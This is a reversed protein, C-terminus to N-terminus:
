NTIQYVIGGHVFTVAKGAGLFKAVAENDLLAFYADSLYKVKVVKADPTKARFAQVTTDVWVGEILRFTKGAIEKVGVGAHEARDASKLENELRAGRVAGAGSAKKKAIAEGAEDMSREMDRLAAIGGDAADAAPAGPSSPVARRRMGRRLFEREELVLFSTYPTVIGYRTALRKIEHVLEPKEGNRRVEGLLFGVKRVAWLRPLYERDSSTGFTGEYVYTVDRGGVRGTLTVAAPGAKRYRGVIALQQGKFLDGLDRPYVDYEDANSITVKVDTLVPSAVKDYLASVKLEINESEAVYHGIGRSKQAMRDLLNTNVDNGVGFVFLRAKATNTQEMARLITGTDSPGITPQGDTLFLVLPVRGEARPLQLAKVLADHIATGGTAELREVYALAAAVNDPTAKVVNERFSRAETAFDVVNFRDRPALRGLAYTLAAKAQKMKTGGRDGMSGSTDLVFVIDKPLVDSEELGGNPALLMLFHGDEGAPKHTALMMGIDRRGHGYLVRLDRDAPSASEEFSAIAHDPGKRVVDLKHTPSYLTAVGAQSRVDIVGSTRVPGPAFTDSKLPYVLELVGGVPSLLQEYRLTVKTDGRPPIPFLRARLLRRGAYELLGPDDRRTVISRYIDRAKKRDLLEGVVEKNGMRMTFRSVSAHEPIPFLYIGEMQWPNPNHFVQTVETVASQDEIRIHVQHEVLRIPGRRPPVTVPPRREPMTEEFRRELVIGQASAELAFLAPLLIALALYRM